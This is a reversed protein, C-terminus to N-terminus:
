VLRKRMLWEDDGDRILDGLAAVRAYGQRLYLQQAGTNFGTVCLWANRVGAFRAEAEYWDLVRHGIGLGQAAPFVAITNLFPGMLWDPQVIVLGMPVRDVCIEWLRQHSPAQVLRKAYIDADAGYHKWPGVEVIAEALRGVATVAGLEVARGDALAPLTVHAIQFGKATM